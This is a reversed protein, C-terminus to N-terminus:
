ETWARGMRYLIPGLVTVEHVTGSYSGSMCALKLQVESLLAPRDSLERHAKELEWKLDWNDYSVEFSSSGVGQLSMMRFIIDSQLPEDDMPGVDNHALWEGAEELSMSPRPFDLGLGFLFGREGYSVLEVTFPARDIGGLPFYVYM